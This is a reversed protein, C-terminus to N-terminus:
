QPTSLGTDHVTSDRITVGASNARVHVAEQGTKGVTLHDIVTGNSGDLVVGKQATSVSFGTLRWYNGTVHLGYGSTDSGTTLVAGAPGTITIPKLSSADTAAVFKGTYTARALEITQGPRAAKLAATLQASTSVPIRDAPASIVAPTQTPTPTPAPTPAPAPTPTPAPTPAPAPTPTGPSGLCPINTTGLGAGTIGCAVTNGRETSEVRVEYGPMGAVSNDAFLNDGGWGTVPSHVQFADLLAGTGSNGQVLTSDGKVDVWSDAYGQGSYGANTFANGRIQGNRTGENIDVGEGATNSITNGEIIVRDSQDPASASGTVVSWRAFPSGVVIGDGENAETLGTDHIASNRIIVDRRGSTVSIAERGVGAVEVGDIATDDADLLVIGRLATKVAFGNLHWFDGSVTLGSGSGSSGTTLVARRTGSLTIPASSTGKATATFSGSYTGDALAITDGPQAAALAAKLQAANSVTVASPAAFAAGGTACLSIGLAIAVAAKAM